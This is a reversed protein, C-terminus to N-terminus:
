SDDVIKCVKIVPGKPARQPIVYTGNRAEEVRRWFDNRKTLTNSFWNTDHVVSTQYYSDLHWPITEV